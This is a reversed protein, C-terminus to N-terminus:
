AFAALATHKRESAGNAHSSLRSILKMKVARDQPPGGLQGSKRAHLLEAGARGVEEWPLRLSTLLLEEGQRLNDFGVIAPWREIPVAAERLAVFLGLAAHDNAAVVGTLDGREVLGRAAELAVSQEEEARPKQYIPYTEGQSALFLHQTPLGAKQLAVRWGQERQASWAYYGSTQEPAHFGLFAISRHGLRMLHRTAQQGGDFDDFHVMDTRAKDELLAEAGLMAFGVRAVGDMEGWKSTANPRYAFDFVGSLPPLDGGERMQLARDISLVMSAGGLEAIREEFGIQIQRSYGGPTPNNPLLLLYFDAAFSAPRRGVFTGVRPITHLVGEDVLKQLEQAVVYLSLQHQEALERVTPLIDGASWTGDQSAQRVQNLLAVKREATVKRLAM